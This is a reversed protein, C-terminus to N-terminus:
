GASLVRALQADLLDRGTVVQAGIEVAWLPRDGLTELAIKVLDKQTCFVADVGLSRIWRDLDEIDTRTYNHHDPFSRFHGVSYGLRVLSSRFAAPNGIGCFAAVSRGALSDLPASQGKAGVLRAAPFAVEVIGCQSSTSNVSHRIAEIADRDVHDVRTIVVIHARILSSVPERLLGRPLLRGFGWPNTADILVIDLDRALRRHQFGDDLIVLQSELEVRAIHAAAVRDPNQLHPVDPCLADLVLAEDNTAADHAGYGRSIFAVRVGRERYWRAIFAAFPTKGTGGTTLNGISVVPIAAREIRKWGRDYAQNRVWAGLSYGAAGASLLCRSVSALAGRKRGSLLDDLHLTWSSNV